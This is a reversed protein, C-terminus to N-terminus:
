GETKAFERLFAARRREYSFEPRKREFEDARALASRISSGFSNIADIQDSTLEHSKASPASKVIPTKAM